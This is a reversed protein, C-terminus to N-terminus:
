NITKALSDSISSRLGNNDFSSIAFHYTDPDLTDFTYNTTLPDNITLIDIEGTSQRTVYLEYGGLEALDLAEGNERHTPAEWILVTPEAVPETLTISLQVVDNASSGQTDSVSATIEHSGASLTTTMTNSGESAIVTTGIAGDLSSQWSIASSLDGDENDQATATFTIIQGTEATTGSAPSTITIVPATNTPEDVVGDDTSGSGCDAETYGEKRAWGKLGGNKDCINPNSSSSLTTETTTATDSSCDELTYGANVAWGKLSDGQCPDSDKATVNASALPLFILTLLLVIQRFVIQKFVIQRSSM